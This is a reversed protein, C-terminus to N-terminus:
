TEQRAYALAQELIMARGEVAAEGLVERASERPLLLDILPPPAHGGAAEKIAGSAGALRLARLRKGEASVPAALNDWSSRKSQRDPRRQGHGRHLEVGGDRPKGQALATRGRSHPADTTGSLDGVERHM